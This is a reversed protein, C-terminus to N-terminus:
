DIAAPLTERVKNGSSGWGSPRGFRFDKALFLSLQPFFYVALIVRGSAHGQIDLLDGCTVGLAILFLIAWRRLTTERALSWFMALGFFLDLGLILLAPGPNPPHSASWETLQTHFNRIVRDVLDFTFWTLLWFNLLRRGESARIVADIRDAIPLFISKLRMLPWILDSYMTKKIEEVSFTLKQEGDPRL